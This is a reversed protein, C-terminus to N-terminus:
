PGGIVARSVQEVLPGAVVAPFLGIAVVLAGALIVTAMWWEQLPSWGVNAMMGFMAFVAAAAAALLLPGTGAVVIRQGRVDMGAKILAQLAGAGTVGPLTWGPFPLLLERAGTCLVIRHSHQTWGRDADELLVRAYLGLSWPSASQGIYLAPASLAQRGPGVADKWTAQGDALAFTEDVKSGFTTSGTVTWAVPLGAAGFELSESLTPGRGNNKYDFDIEVRNASTNAVLHGVRAKGAIVSFREEEAGAPLVSMSLVAVAFTIMWRM